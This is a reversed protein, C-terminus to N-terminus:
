ERPYVLRALHRSRRDSRCRPQDAAALVAIGAMVPLALTGYLTTVWYLLPPSLREDTQGQMVLISQTFGFCGVVVLLDFLARSTAYQGQARIGHFLVLVFPLAFQSAAGIGQILASFALKSRLSESVSAM